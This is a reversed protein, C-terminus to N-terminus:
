RSTESKDFDVFKPPALDKAFGKILEVQRPTGRVIIRDDRGDAVIMPRSAEPEGKFLTMLQKSLQKAAGPPVPLVAFDAKEPALRALTAEVELMRRHPGRVFLRNEAGEAYFGPTQNFADRLAVAVKHGSNDALRYTRVDIKDNSEAGENFSPRDLSEIIRDAIILKDRDARVFVINRAEDFEIETQSAVSGAVSNGPIASNINIGPMFSQIIKKEGMVAGMQAFDPPKFPIGPPMQPGTPAQPGTPVALLKSLVNVAEYARAHKLHYPRLPITNNKGPADVVALMKILERVCDCRDWVAIRNAVGTEAIKGRPSLLSALETKVQTGTLSNLKITTFVPLNDRRITIENSPSFPTLTQHLNEALRIAVLLKEKRILTVGRDLLAGHIIELAKEPPVPKADKYTFTGPPEFDIQVSLGLPKAVEALVERWPKESFELRVGDVAQPEAALAAFAFVTLPALM